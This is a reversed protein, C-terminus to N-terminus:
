GAAEHRVAKKVAMEVKVRPEGEAAAYATVAAQFAASADVATQRAVDPDAATTIAAHAEVATRELTVLDEFTHPM